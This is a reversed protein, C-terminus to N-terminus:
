HDPRHGHLAPGVWGRLFTKMQQETRPPTSPYQLLSLFLRLLVEAFDAVDHETFGLRDWDVPLRYM